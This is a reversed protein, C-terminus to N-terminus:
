ESKYSGLAELLKIAPGMRGEIKIAGTMYALTSNLQHSLLKIMDKESIVITCDVPREGLSENITVLEDEIHVFIEWGEKLQFCYHYHLHAIAQPAAIMQRQLKKLLELVQNSL